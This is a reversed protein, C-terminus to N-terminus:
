FKRFFKCDRKKQMGNQAFNKGDADSSSIPEILGLDAKPKDSPKESDTKPDSAESPTQEEEDSLEKENQTGENDM